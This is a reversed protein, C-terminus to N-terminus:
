LSAGSIRARDLWSGGAPDRVACSGGGGSRQTDEEPVVPAGPDPSDKLAEVLDLRSCQIAPALGFLVGTLVSVAASFALVYTNM